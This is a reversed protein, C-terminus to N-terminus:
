LLYLIIVYLTFSSNNVLSSMKFTQSPENKVRSPVPFRSRVGGHKLFTRRLIMLIETNGRTFVTQSVTYESSTQLTFGQSFGSTSLRSGTSPAGCTPRAWGSSSLRLTPYAPSGPSWVMGPSGPSQFILMSISFCIPRGSVSQISQLGGESWWQGRHKGGSNSNMLFQIM